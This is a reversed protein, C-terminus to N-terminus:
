ALVVDGDIYEVIFQPDEFKPYEALESLITEDLQIKNKFYYYYNQGIQRMELNDFDVDKYTNFIESYFDILDSSANEFEIKPSNFYQYGYRHIFPEKEKWINHEHTMSVLETESKHAYLFNVIQMIKLGIDYDIHIDGVPYHKLDNWRYNTYVDYVVPGNEFAVFEKDFMKEKYVSYHMLESFYLLKNLKLNQYNRYDVALKNKKIFWKAAKFTDIM